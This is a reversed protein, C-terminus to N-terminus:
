NVRQASFAFTYELFLYVDCDQSLTQDSVPCATRFTNADRLRTQAAHHDQGAVTLCRRLDGSDQHSGRPDGSPTGQSSLYHVRRTIIKNPCCKRTPRAHVCICYPTGHGRNRSASRWARRLYPSARRRTYFHSSGLRLSARLIIFRDVVVTKLKRIM